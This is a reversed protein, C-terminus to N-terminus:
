RPWRRAPSPRWAEVEPVFHQFAEGCGKLTTGVHAAPCAGVLQVRAAGREHAFGISTAGGRVYPRIHTELVDCIEAEVSGEPWAGAAGDRGDRRRALAPVLASEPVAPGGSQLGRECDALGAASPM